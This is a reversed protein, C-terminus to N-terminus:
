MEERWLTLLDIVMDEEEAGVVVGLVERLDRLWIM